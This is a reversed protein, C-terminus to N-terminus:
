TLDTFRLHIASWNLCKLEAPTVFIKKEVMLKSIIM